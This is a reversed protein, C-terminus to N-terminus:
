GNQEFVPGRILGAKDNPDQDGANATIRAALSKKDCCLGGAKPSISITWALIHGYYGTPTTFALLRSFGLMWLVVVSAVVAEMTM